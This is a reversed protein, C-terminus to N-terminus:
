VAKDVEQRSQSRDHVAVIVARYQAANVEALLTEDGGVALLQQVDVDRQRDLVQRYRERVGYEGGLALIVPSDRRPAVPLIAIEAQLEALPPPRAFRQDAVVGVPALDDRFLARQVADNLEIEGVANGEMNYVTVNAM